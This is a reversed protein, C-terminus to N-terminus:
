NYPNLYLSLFIHKSGNILTAEGLKWGAETYRKLIDQLDRIKKCVAVDLMVKRLGLYKLFETTEEVQLNKLLEKTKNPHKPLDEKYKFQKDKRGGYWWNAYVNNYDNDAWGTTGFLYYMPNDEGRVEAVVLTDTNAKMYEKAFIPAVNWYSVFRKEWTNLSEHPVQRCRTYFDMKYERSDWKSKLLELIHM